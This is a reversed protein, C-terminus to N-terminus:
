LTVLGELPRPTDPAESIEVRVRGNEFENDPIQRGQERAGGQPSGLSNVSLWARM